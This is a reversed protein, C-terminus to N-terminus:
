ISTETYQIHAHQVTVMKLKIEQIDDRKKKEAYCCMALIEKMEIQCLM